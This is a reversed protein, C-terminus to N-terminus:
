QQCRVAVENCFIPARHAKQCKKMVEARAKGASKHTASFFQGMDSRLTCTWEDNKFPHQDYSDRHMAVIRDALQDIHERMQENQRELEAVRRELQSVRDGRSYTGYHYQSYSIQAFLITSLGLIFPLLHKKLNHMKSYEM